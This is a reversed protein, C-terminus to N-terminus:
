SSYTEDEGELIGRMEHLRGIICEGTTEGWDQLVAALTSRFDEAFAADVIGQREQEAIALSLEFRMARCAAWQRADRQFSLVAEVPRGDGHAPTEALSFEQRLLIGNQVPLNRVIAHM